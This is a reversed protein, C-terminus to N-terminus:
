LTAFVGSRGVKELPSVTHPRLSLFAASLGLGLTTRPLSRAGPSITADDAQSLGNTCALFVDSDCDVDGPLAAPLNVDQSREPSTTRTPALQTSSTVKPWCHVLLLARSWPSATNGCTSATFRLAKDVMRM